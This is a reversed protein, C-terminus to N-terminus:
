TLSARDCSGSPQANPQHFLSLVNTVQTLYGHRSNRLSKPFLQLIRGALVTIKTFYYYNSAYLEGSIQLSFIYPQTQIHLTTDSNQTNFIV